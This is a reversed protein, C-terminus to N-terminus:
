GGGCRPVLFSGGGPNVKVRRAKGAGTEPHGGRRWRERKWWPRKRGTQRRRTVSARSRFQMDPGPALRRHVSAHLAPVDGGRGRQDRERPVCRQDKQRDKGPDDEVQDEREEQSLGDGEADPQAMAMRRQAPGPRDSGPDPQDGKEPSKKDGRRHLAPYGEQHHVKGPEDERDHAGAEGRGQSRDHNAISDPMERACARRVEFRDRGHGQRHRSSTFTSPSASGVWKMRDSELIGIGCLLAADDSTAESGDHGGDPNEPNGGIM